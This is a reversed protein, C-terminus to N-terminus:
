QTVYTYLLDDSRSEPILFYIQLITEVLTITKGTGPPGFIVYPLPRAEGRLINKVAEKQYHNLSKNFWFLKMKKNSSIKSDAEKVDGIKLGVNSNWKVKNSESYSSKNSDSTNSRLAKNKVENNTHHLGVKKAQLLTKNNLGEGKCETLNNSNNPSNPKKYMTHINESLPEIGELVNNSSGNLLSKEIEELTKMGCKATPLQGNTSFSALQELLCKVEKPSKETASPLQNSSQQQLFRAIVPVRPPSVVKKQTEDKELEHSAKSNCGKVNGLVKEGKKVITTATNLIDEISNEATLLIDDSLLKNGNLKSVENYIEKNVKDKSSKDTESDTKKKNPNHYNEEATIVIQFCSFYNTLSELM